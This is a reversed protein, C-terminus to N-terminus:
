RAGDALRYYIGREKTDVKRLTRTRKNPNPVNDKFLAEIDYMLTPADMYADHNLGFLEFDSRNADISYVDDVIMPYGDTLLMGARVRRAKGGSVFLAKDYANAYLTVSNFMSPVYKLRSTAVSVDVDPSALVLNTASPPNPMQAMQDLADLVLQNGKSHAIINLSTIGTKQLLLQLYELFHQKTAQVSVDDYNYWTATPKGRSPWSYHLVPGELDLDVAIQATRYLGFEFPTNFGHVFLFPAGKQAGKSVESFYKDESMMSVPEVIIIHRDAKEKEIQIGFIRWPRSVRGRKRRDPVSLIARGYTRASARDYGFGHEGIRNRNTAFFIECTLADGDPPVQPGLPKAGGGSLLGGGALKGQLAARAQVNLQRDFQVKITATNKFAGTGPEVRFLPKGKLEDPIAVDPGLDLNPASADLIEQIREAKMDRAEFEQELAGGIEADEIADIIVDSLKQLEQLLGSSLARTIDQSAGVRAIIAKWVRDVNSIDSAEVYESVSLLQAGATAGALAAYIDEELEASPDPADGASTSSSATSSPSPESDSLDGLADRTLSGVARAM